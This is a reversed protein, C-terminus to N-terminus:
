ERIGWLVREVHESVVEGDVPLNPVLEKAIAKFEAKIGRRGALKFLRTVDVRERRFADAIIRGVELESYPIRKRTAEFYTDVLARELSAKGDMNGALEAFERIVFLDRDELVKLALEVEERSPNLLSRLNVEGLSEAAFEGAGEIVYILHILRRPFHRHFITLVSPGTVMFEVGKEELIEMAKKLTASTVEVTVRESAIVRETIVVHKDPIKYIGRSVRILSGNKTLEHLVQYVTNRSYGKEKELAEVAERAFFPENGFVAKLSELAFDSWGM